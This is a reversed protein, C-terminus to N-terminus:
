EDLSDVLGMVKIGQAPELTVMTQPIMSLEAIDMEINAEVLSEQVAQFDSVEAFIEVMDEGVVVDEVHM